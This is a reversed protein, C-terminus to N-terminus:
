SCNIHFSSCRFLRQYINKALEFVEWALQLNSVDDSIDEEDGNEPKAESSSSGPAKLSKGKSENKPKSVTKDQVQPKSSSEGNTNESSAEVDEMEVDNAKESSAEDAKTITEPNSKTEIVKVDEIIKKPVDDKKEAENVKVSEDVEKKEAEDMKESEVIEIKETGDMKESQKVENKDPETSKGPESELKKSAESLKESEAGNLKGNTEEHKEDKDEKEDDGSGEEDEEDDNEEDEDSSDEGEAKDGVSLLFSFYVFM